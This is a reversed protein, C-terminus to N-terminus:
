QLRKLDQITHPLYESYSVIIEARGDIVMEKKACTVSKALFNKSPHCIDQQVM